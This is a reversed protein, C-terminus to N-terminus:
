VGEDDFFGECVAVDEEAVEEGGLGGGAGLEGCCVPQFDRGRHPALFDVFSDVLEVFGAAMLDVEGVLSLAHSRVEQM